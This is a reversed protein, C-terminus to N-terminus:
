GGFIYLIIRTVTIVGSILGVILIFYGFNKNFSEILDLNKAKM